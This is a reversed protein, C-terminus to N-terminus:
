ALRRSSATSCFDDIFTQHGPMTRAADGIVKRIHLVYDRLQNPPIAEVLPDCGEPIIDQGLMVALWSDETFLDEPPRFVRGHHRFLEIRHRLTEPIPMHRCHQWFPTDDRLGAHYHLIIFDRIYDYERATMRNFETIEASAFGTDPFLSILKQLGTQILHISTSELPELFGGALGIAVCNKVWMRTRRGAAFRLPRPEGLPAGDLNAMLQQSAEDDSLFDSCYVYGNGIRHQLPIRWRWGARDATSRTYPIPEGAPESPVALARNCPLSESWDVFDTKLTEGILLSRFGSCDIFLQGGVSAGDRLNVAEIFGSEGHQTVHTIRGEVRKVGRRESLTRLLRAYLMADFHYAYRMTNLVEGDVPEPRRFRNLYAAVTSLNYEGLEGILAGAGQQRLKLWFQHFRITNRDRGFKGFPHFYRSGLCSWDVFEIGLKFTGKTARVFEAENIGLVENFATLPPITAEGVGVSGIEESEVLTISVRSTDLMRSLAAAAMWGATGGGVIVIKSIPPNV